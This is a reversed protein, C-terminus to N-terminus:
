SLSILQNWQVISVSIRLDVVKKLPRDGKFFPIRNELSFFEKKAFIQIRIM